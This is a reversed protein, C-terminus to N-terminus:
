RRNNVAKLNSVKLALEPQDVLLMSLMDLQLNAKNKPYVSRRVGTSLQWYTRTNKALNSRILNQM